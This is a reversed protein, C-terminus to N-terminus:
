AKEKEAGEAAPPKRLPHTTLYAICSLGWANQRVLPVSDGERKLGLTDEIYAEDAKNEPVVEIGHREVIFKM